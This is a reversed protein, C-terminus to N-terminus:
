LNAELIKSLDNNTIGLGLDRMITYAASGDKLYHTNGNFDIYFAEGHAEVQLFIKGSHKKAFNKDNKIKDLDKNTIGVGLYKMIRYAENGNAMYYRKKNQPNVYWAEGHSQVQLLIKGSMKQPFPDIKLPIKKTSILNFIGFQGSYTGDKVVPTYQRMVFRYSSNIDIGTKIINDNETEKFGYDVYKYYCNDFAVPDPNASLYSYKSCVDVPNGKDFYVTTKTVFDKNEVGDWEIFLNNTPVKVSQTKSSDFKITALLNGKTGNSYDYLYFYDPRNTVISYQVPDKTIWEPLVGYNYTSIVKQSLNGAKDQAQIILYYIGYSPFTKSISRNTQFSGDIFANANINTGWYIYYGKIGSADSAAPWESYVSEDYFRTSFNYANKKDSSGWIKIGLLFDLGSIDPPTIDDQITMNSDTTAQNEIIKGQYESGLVNSLWQKIVNVSFIYSISNLEGRIVFTPIGIFQGNSSYASGGSNGHEIAATTKIFNKTKDAMSGYGSFDGSTYTVTSGGIGPFGVIEIKDGFKLTSSDSNWINVYPYTKNTKNDLYLIAADMDNSTTYYKVEALNPNEKSGFNPEENISNILGVICTNKNAKEIVHRNTLIIGKPDIITGSGSFWNNNGDTCVIQVEASIQNQTIAESFNIPVLGLIFILILFIYFQKKM